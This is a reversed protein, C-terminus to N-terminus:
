SGSDGSFKYDQCEFYSKKTASSFTDTGRGIRTRNNKSQALTFANGLISSLVASTVLDRTSIESSRFTSMSVSVFGHKVGEFPTCNSQTWTFSNSDVMWTGAKAHRLSVLPQVSVEVNWFLFKVLDEWSFFPWGMYPNLNTAHAGIPVAFGAQSRNSFAATWISWHPRLHNAWHDWNAALHKHMFVSISDHMISSM